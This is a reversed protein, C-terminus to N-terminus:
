GAPPASEALWGTLLLVVGAGVVELLLTGRTPVAGGRVLRRHHWAGLALLLLAVLAKALVLRGYGAQGLGALGGVRPLATVIGSALTLPAAVLALRGYRPIFRAIESVDSWWSPALLALTGLWAGAAAAHVVARVWAVALGDEVSAAHGLAPLLLLTALAWGRLLRDGWPRTLHATAIAAVALGALGLRNRGWGISAIIALTDPLPDAAPGFAEFARLQGVLQVALGALVLAGAVRVPRRLARAPAVWTTTAAGVLLLLGVLQTARGLALFPDTLVRAVEPGGIARSRTAGDM